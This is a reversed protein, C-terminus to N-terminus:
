IINWLYLLLYTIKTNQHISYFLWHTFIPSRLLYYWKYCFWEQDIILLINHTIDSSSLTFGSPGNGDFIDINWSNQPVSLNETQTVDCLYFNQGDTKIYVGEIINPPNSNDLNVLGALSTINNGLSTLLVGSIYLLRSKGAQYIM